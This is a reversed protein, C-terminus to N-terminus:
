HTVYTIPDIGLSLSNLIDKRRTKNQKKHNITKQKTNNQKKMLAHTQIMEGYVHKNVAIYYHCVM